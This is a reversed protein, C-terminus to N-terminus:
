QSVALPIPFLDPWHANLAILVRDFVAAETGDGPLAVIRGCEPHEVQWEPRLALAFADEVRAHFDAGALEIRDTAGRQVRRARRQVASATLVLTLDPVHGGTALENASRVLAESLGRGAIQYAYTSLFFRDMLVTANRTLAPEIVEDMVQARSAMFLLAEARAGVDPGSDLVLTRIADGLATGGPERVAVCTAGRAALWEELRRLQTTKGAGEPGEFVILRGRM